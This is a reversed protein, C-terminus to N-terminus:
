RGHATRLPSAPLVRHTGSRQCNFVFLNLM